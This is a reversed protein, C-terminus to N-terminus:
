SMRFVPEPEDAHKDHLELIVNFPQMAVPVPGGDPGSLESHVSLYNRFEHPYRAVLLKWAAKWDPDDTLKKVMRTKWATRAAETAELFEEFRSGPEKTGRERWTVLTRRSVGAMRAADELNAGSKLYECIRAEISDNLLCPKDANSPAEGQERGKMGGAQALAAAHKRAGPRLTQANRHNGKNKRYSNFSM